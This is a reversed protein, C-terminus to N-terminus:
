EEVYFRVNCSFPALEETLTKKIRPMLNIRLLCKQNQTAWKFNKDFWNDLYDFLLDENIEEIEDDFHLHLLVTEEVQDLLLENDTWDVM